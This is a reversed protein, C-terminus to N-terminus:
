KTLYKSNDVLAGILKKIYGEKKLKRYCLNGIHPFDKSKSSDQRMLILRNLIHRFYSAFQTKSDIELDPNKLLDILYDIESTLRSYKKTVDRDDISISEANPSKVWSNNKISYLASDNHLDNDDHIDFDLFIGDIKPKNKINWKKRQRDIGHKIEKREYDDFDSLDVIVVIDAEPHGSNEYSPHSGTLHVDKIEKSHLESPLFRKLDDVLELIKRSFDGNLFLSGSEDKGWFPGSLSEYESTFSESDSELLFNFYNKVPFNM